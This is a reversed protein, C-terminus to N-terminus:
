KTIILSGERFVQSNKEDSDYGIMVSHGNIKYSSGETNISLLHNPKSGIALIATAEPLIYLSQPDSDVLEKWDFKIRYNSDAGRGFIIDAKTATITTGSYLPLITSLVLYATSNYPLDIYISNNYLINLEKFIGYANILLNYHSLLVGDNNNYFLVGPDNLLVNNKAVFDMSFNSECVRNLISEDDIVLKADIECKDDDSIVLIAGLGWIAYCLIDFYPSPINKIFVKDGKNIGKSELWNSYRDILKLFSANTLNHDKFLLNNSFKICQGVALSRLNPYPVMYEIPEINGFCQAQYIEKKLM